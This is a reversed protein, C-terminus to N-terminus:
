GVSPQQEFDPLALGVRDVSIMDRGAAMMNLRKLGDATGIVLLDLITFDVESLLALDVLVGDDPQDPLPGTEDGVRAFGWLNAMGNAQGPGNVRAVNIVPSCGCWVPM